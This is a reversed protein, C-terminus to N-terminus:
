WQRTEGPNLVWLANSDLGRRQAEVQLRVPPEDFPEETLDFTGWHIGLLRRGQLDLFVQLAEEPTLHTMRMIDRPIYAGISIAAVDFPGFRDGIKKFGSYYGTDGSFFFRKGAGMVAWSSWLTKNRDWLTRGSFHQAPLCVVTLSKFHYQEWWDLEEVRPIQHEQFWAKLGLPVLFLPDHAAALHKVTELDLHDYHNHSIIVLHISPLDELRIGPPSVRKPGAFSVPSARDSWQPDTLLNVGELQVLLTSHGVWTVKPTTSSTHLISRDNEQVPLDFTRPAFTTQWIKSVIFAHLKWWDPPAYAPNTNRFGDKTHHFPLFSQKQPSGCHMIFLSLIFGLGIVGFRM